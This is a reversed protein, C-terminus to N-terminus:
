HHIHDETQCEEKQWAGLSQRVGGEAEVQLLMLSLVAYAIILGVNTDYPADM